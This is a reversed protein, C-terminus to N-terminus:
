KVEVSEGEGLISSVMGRRRVHKMLIMVTRVNEVRVRAVRGPVHSSRIGFAPMAE